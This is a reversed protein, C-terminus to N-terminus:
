HGPLLTTRVLLRCLPALLQHHPGGVAVVVGRLLLYHHLQLLALVVVVVMAQLLLLVSVAVHVGVGFAWCQPLLCKPALLSGEEVGKKQRHALM